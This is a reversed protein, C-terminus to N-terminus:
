STSAKGTAPDHAQHSTMGHMVQGIIKVRLWRPATALSGGLLKSLWGPRVTTLKGLAALTQTAVVDPELTQSMRLNARVAFGTNIPGPASALVDVGFAKLEVRLGEALTQVYAKTAAYNASRPTGQFALVSSMLVIGGRGRAAFRNGFHWCQGLVAACNVALMEQELAIPNHVFSGSTGFGASAVLLGVDLDVCYDIMKRCGEDTALDAVVVRTKIGHAATLEISLAQMPLLRRAVLVLDIKRAALTRAFARGIGDSAGTVVAWEGYRSRFDSDPVRPSPTHNTSM